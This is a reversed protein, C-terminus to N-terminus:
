RASPLSKRSSASGANLKDSLGVKPLELITSYKQSHSAQEVEIVNRRSSFPVTVASGSESGARALGRSKAIMERCLHMSRLVTLVVRAPMVPRGAPWHGPPVRRDLGVAASYLYGAWRSSATCCFGIVIKVYCDCLIVTTNISCHLLFRLGTMGLPLLGPGAM